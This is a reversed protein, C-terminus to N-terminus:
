RVLLMRVTEAKGDFQMQYLYVGSALDEADFRVEHRGATQYDDVMRRVLQGAVNYVRVTVHGGENLTYSITTSHSFPNPYNQHLEFSVPSAVQDDISVFPPGEFAGMYPTDHRPQGDIDEPVEALPTGALDSDGLSGGTLRLNTEAIFEVATSSSNSDQGSAFQWDTLADLDTGDWNGVHATASSVFLNNFDSTLTESEIRWHIAYAAAQQRDAVFINNKLDFTKTTTTFPVSDQPFGFAAHVGTQDTDAVLVTNHYIRHHETGAGRHAGIGYVENTDVDGSDDFDAPISIMNNFVDITGGNINFLIGTVHRTQTTNAGLMFIENGEVLANEVGSLYIGNYGFAPNAQRGTVHVRNGTATFDANIFTIIGRATAFVESDSITGGTQQIAGTGWFAVGDRFPSELSGVLVNEVLINEPAVTSADDRRVRIGISGATAEARQVSLNRIVVNMADRQVSIGRDADPDDVIITLDRNSENPDNSGDLTVYRVDVFAIGANRADPIATAPNAGVTVTPTVGPAPRIVVPTAATLNAQQLTVDGREDLDSTILLTIPGSPTRNSLDGFAAALSSYDPDAGGPATGAAGVYFTGEFFGAPNIRFAAIGNNAQLGYLDFTGNDEDVVIALDGAGFTNTEEGLSPTRVLLRAAGDGPTVDYVSFTMPGDVVGDNVALYDRGGLEFFVSTNTPIPISEVTSVHSGDARHLRPHIGGTGGGGGGANFYFDGSGDGLLAVNPFIETGTIGELVIIESDFTQGGDDTTFKVIRNMNAAAAYIELSNDATSGFVKIRDGLRMSSDQSWTIVVVPDADEDDWRYVKFPNDATPSLEMNCAFIVGDDSVGVDNLVFAGLYGGAVGASSLVGVDVGTEANLVRIRNPTESRSAVFVRANDDVVGYAMGRETNTEGFWDPHDNPVTREWLTEIQAAATTTFAFTLLLLPLLQRMM